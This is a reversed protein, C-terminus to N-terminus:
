HYRKELAFGAPLVRRPPLHISQMEVFPRVEPAVARIDVREFWRVVPVARVPACLTSGQM